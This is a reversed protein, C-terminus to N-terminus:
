FKRKDERDGEQKKGKLAAESAPYSQWRLLAMSLSAVRKSDLLAVRLEASAALPFRKAM